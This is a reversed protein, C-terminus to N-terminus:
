QLVAEKIALLQLAAPTKLPRSSLFNVDSYSKPLFIPNAKWTTSSIRSKVPLSLCNPLGATLSRALPYKVAGTNYARSSFLLKDTKILLSSTSFSSKCLARLMIILELAILLELFSASSKAIRELCAM